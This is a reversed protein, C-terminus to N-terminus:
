RRHVCVSETDVWVHQWAAQRHLMAACALCDHLAVTDRVSGVSDVAVLTSLKKNNSTGSSRWSPVMPMSILSVPM